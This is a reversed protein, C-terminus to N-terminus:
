RTYFILGAITIMALVALVHALLGAARTKTIERM